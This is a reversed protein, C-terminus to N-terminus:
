IILEVAKEAHIKTTDFVPIDVDNQSILLPIETCGLIIGEAGEQKLKNIFKIFISKSKDNINGHVLENYITKHIINRDKKDPILSDINFNKKLNKKYFEKEMTFKTGLLGVRQIRKKKIKEGVADAIHLFPISINNLIANTSQHMTNTCLIILEAGANELKGAIDAMKHNLKEWNDNRQLIEIEEFDVSYLISKCSRFGGYLENVKTNILEYYIKTSEWSMGGILGLTKM